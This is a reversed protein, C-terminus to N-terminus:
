GRVTLLDFMATTQGDTILARPGSMQQSLHLGLLTNNEAWRELAALAAGLWVLGPSVVTLNFPEGAMLEAGASLDDEQHAAICDLSIMGVELDFRVLQAVIIAGQQFGSSGRMNRSHDFASAYSLPREDRELVLSHPWEDRTM